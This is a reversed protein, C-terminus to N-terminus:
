SSFFSHMVKRLYFCCVVVVVVVVVYCKTGLLNPYALSVSSDLKQPVSDRFVLLQIQTIEVAGFRQFCPVSLLFVIKAAGQGQGGVIM